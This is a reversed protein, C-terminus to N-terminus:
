CQPLYKEPDKMELTCSLKMVCKQYRCYVFYSVDPQCLDLHEVFLANRREAMVALKKIAELDLSM